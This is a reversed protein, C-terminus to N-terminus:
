SNYRGLPRMAATQVCCASCVHTVRAQWIYRACKYCDRRLLACMVFKEIANFASVIASRETEDQVKELEKQADTPCPDLPFGANKKFRNLKPMAVTWFHYAFGALTQKFARFCTEIKFRLCCLKIIEEPFM